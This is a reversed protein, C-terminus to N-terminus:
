MLLRFLDHEILSQMQDDTVELSMGVQNGNASIRAGTLVAALESNEQKAQQQRYLLGLQLVQSVLQANAPSSSTAQVDIELDSPAKLVFSIGQLTTILERAQPFRSIDAFVDNKEANFVTWMIGSGNVEDILNLMKENSFLSEGEGAKTALLRLLANRTGFAIKGTDILTFSIDSAGSATGSSYFVSDGVKNGAINHATLFSQIAGLDFSGEAVGLLEGSGISSSGQSPAIRAWAVEDIVPTQQLQAAELFQEFGYLAVPVIQAQFQPFWPFGRATKIDAYGCESINKPFMALVSSDLAAAHTLPTVLFLLMIAAILPISLKRSIM